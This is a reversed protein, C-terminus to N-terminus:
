WEEAQKEWYGPEDHHTNNMATDLPLFYFEAGEIKMKGDPTELFDALKRYDANATDFPLDVYIHGLYGLILAGGDNAVHACPRWAIGARTSGPSSGGARGANTRDSAGRTPIVNRFRSL